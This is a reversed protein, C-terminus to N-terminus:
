RVRIKLTSYLGLQSSGLKASHIGTEPHAKQWKEKQLSFNPMVCREPRLKGM